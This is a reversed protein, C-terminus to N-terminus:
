EPVIATDDLLFCVTGGDGPGYGDFTLTLGTAPGYLEGSGELQYWNSGANLYPSDFSQAGGDAHLASLTMLVRAPAGAEPARIWGWSAVDTGAELSRSVTQSFSFTGDAIAGGCILCSRTGSHAIPSFTVTAGYFAWGPGCLTTGEEFGANQLLNADIAGDQTSGDHGSDGGDTTGQNGGDASGDQGTGADLPAASSLGNLSDCSPTWAGAATLAGWGWWWRM